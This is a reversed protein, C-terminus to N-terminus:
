KVPKKKMGTSVIGSKGVHVGLHPGEIEGDGGGAVCWETEVVDSDVGDGGVSLGVVFQSGEQCSQVSIDDGGLDPLLCLLSDGSKVAILSGPGPSLASPSIVALQQLSGWNGKLKV